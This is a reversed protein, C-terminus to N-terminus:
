GLKAVGCARLRRIAGEYDLAGVDEAAAALWAPERGALKAQLDALWREAATDNRELCALLGRVLDDITRPDPAGSPTTSPVPTGALTALGSVLAALSSAFAERAASAHTADAALADDLAAADRAVATAGLNAAAGKIAHALFRADAPKGDEVFREIERAAAGYHDRFQVLLDRLLRANGNCRRLAVELDVGPIGPPLEGSTASAEQRRARLTADAIGEAGVWLAVKSVLLDPDIPKAIHDNMGAALCREREERLTHATLAILPLRSGHPMERIIRTTEYGDMEPMQLDVLAVDFEGIGVRQLMEIALRGNGAIRVDAGEQELLERALQQNVPNDEVLLVRVGTLARKRPPAVVEEKVKHRPDMLRAVTDVLMGPTVPKLLVGDLLEASEPTGLANERGYATVMIVVPTAAIAPDARIARTAALGDMGPMKWDMLVLPYPRGSVSANRLEEIAGAADAVAGAEFGMAALQAVLIQRASANDDVVLARAGQMAPPLRGEARESAEGVGLEVDFFFTTGKGPTSELWIGGDMLGVLRKSIVLGLGTGGFKRTTSADAQTFAQFLRAAQEESLGIGTDRVAFALRVSDMQRSRVTVRVDVEGEHTFKVANNCLNVLVQGLRMPDGVLPSPVDPAVDILLELGKREALTGVYAVVTEMVEALRFPIRELNMHGAEIKSFDLLDNVIHLLGQAATHIKEVYDAQRPDLDTRLALTAFGTIANIPTRIEHSMNALFESKSASARDARDRAHELDRTRDAVKGELSRNLALVDEQHRQIREIMQNFAEYLSGVEDHGPSTLRAGYDQTKAVRRAHEELALIPTTVLRQLWLTVLWAALVVGALVLLLFRLDAGAARELEAARFGVQLRGLPGGRHTVPASVDLVDTGFRRPDGGVEAFVKGKADELRVYAVRPDLALKALLERAGPGDEFVMPSVAYEAVLRAQATAAAEFEAGRAKAAQRQTFALMAATALVVITMTVLMLKRRLPLDALSNSL